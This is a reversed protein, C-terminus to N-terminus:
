ISAKFACLSPYSSAYCSHLLHFPLKEAFQVTMRLALSPDTTTKQHELPKFASGDRHEHHCKPYSNQNLQITVNKRQLL